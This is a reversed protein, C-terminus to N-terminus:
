GEEWIRPWNRVQKERGKERRLGRDEERTSEWAPENTSVKHTDVFANSYLLCGAKWSPTTSLGQEVSWEKEGKM